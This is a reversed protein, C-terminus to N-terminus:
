SISKLIIAAVPRPVMDRWRPDDQRMMDRIQSGSVCEESDSLDRRIIDYGVERGINISNIDPLRMVGVREGRFTERIMGIRQIVTFPDSDTIPTSRVGVLVPDAGALAQRIIAVHGNHLPSWRGIFLSWPGTYYLGSARSMATMITDVCVGVSGRDTSVRVSPSEPREYPGDVGTFGAIKGARAMTYMGKPDRKECVSLACDVHCMLMEGGCRQIEAAVEQRMANLPSVFACIVTVGHASMSGAMHAARLVNVTRDKPTFGLGRSMPTKRFEDGDLVHVPIGVSDRLRAALAHALTTKGSGPLGTMWIVM